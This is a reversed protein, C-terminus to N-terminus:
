SAVLYFLWALNSLVLLVLATSLLRDSPGPEREAYAIAQSASPSPAGEIEQSDGPKSLGSADGGVISAAPARTKGIASFLATAFDSANPFRARPDRALARAIVDSIKSDIGLEALPRPRENQVRLIGEEVPQDPEFFPHVGVLATYAIVGIAWVDGAPSMAGVASRAPYEDAPEDAGQDGDRDGAFFEPAFVAAAEPSLTASRTMRLEAPTLEMQFNGISLGGVSSAAIGPDDLSAESLYIWRASIAGHAKQRRHIPTLIDAIRGVIECTIEASLTGERELIEGLSGHPSRESIVFPIRGELEGYDVIRLIGPTQFSSAIKASEKLRDVLGGVVAPDTDAEVLGEYLQVWVPRAFPDQLGHYTTILGHRDRRELVDYRHELALTGGQLDEM